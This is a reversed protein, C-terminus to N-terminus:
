FHFMLTLGTASCKSATCFVFDMDCGYVKCELTPTHSYCGGSAQRVQACSPSFASISSCSTVLFLDGSKLCQPDASVGSAASTHNNKYTNFIPEFTAKFKFIGLIEGSPLTWECDLNGEKSSMCTERDSLNNCNSVM